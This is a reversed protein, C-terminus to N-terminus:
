ITIGRIDKVRVWRVLSYSTERALIYCSSLQTAIPTVGYLALILDVFVSYIPLRLYNERNMSKVKYTRCIEIFEKLIDEQGPRDKKRFQDFWWNRFGKIDKISGRFDWFDKNEMNNLTMRDPLIEGVFSPLYELSKLSKEFNAPLRELYSKVWLDPCHYPCLYHARLHLATTLDFNSLSAYQEGAVFKDEYKVISRPNDEIFPSHYNIQGIFDTNEMLNNVQTIINPNNGITEEYLLYQENDKIIEDLIDNSLAKETLEYSYISENILGDKFREFNYYGNIDKLYPSLIIIKDYILLLYDLIDYFYKDDYCPHLFLNAGKKFERSLGKSPKVSKVYKESKFWNGKIECYEDRQVLTIKRGRVRFDVSIFGKLKQENYTM